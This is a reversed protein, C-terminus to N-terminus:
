SILLFRSFDEKSRTIRGILPANDIVDPASKAEQLPDYPRGIQQHLFDQFKELTLKQRINDNLPLWWIEGEFAALREQLKNITVGPKEDRPSTVEIIQHTSGVHLEDDDPPNSQLVVAVHDVTNYTWWKIIGSFGGHGGFAIVDGPKLDIRVDEYKARAWTM